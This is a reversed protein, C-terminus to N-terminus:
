KCVGGQVKDSFGNDVFDYIRLVSTKEIIGRTM